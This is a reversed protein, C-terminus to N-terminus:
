KVLPLDPNVLMGDNSNYLPHDFIHALYIKKAWFPNNQVYNELCYIPSIKKMRHQQNFESIALREGNYESYSYGMIDDFYCHIRPLLIRNDGDFVRFSAVTPTYMDMDFSVFAIPAPNSEIFGNITDEIDGLILSAKKIKGKLKDVDMPYHGESWLHPLDRYDQPKTLGTGTDFGYVEIEFDYIKELEIAINELEVLGNGGAVGFELFSIKELNLNAALDTGCLAGWVYNGRSINEKNLIERYKKNLIAYKSIQAYVNPKNKRHIKVDIGLRKLLKRILKKM